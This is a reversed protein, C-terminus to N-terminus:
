WRGRCLACRWPRDKQQFPVKAITRQLDVEGLHALLLDIRSCRHRGAGQPRAGPARRRGAVVRAAAREHAEHQARRARRHAGRARRAGQGSGQRALARGGRAPLAPLARLHRGRAGRRPGDGRGARAPARRLLRRARQDRGRYLKDIAVHRVGPCRSCSRACSSRSAGRRARGRARLGRADGRGAQRVRRRAARAGRPPDVAEGMALELATTYGELATDLRPCSWRRPPAACRRRHRAARRRAVRQHARGLRGRDHLRAAAARVRRRHRRLARAGRGHRGRAARRPRSPPAARRAPEAAPPPASRAGCGPAGADAPARDLRLGRRPRRAPAATEEAELRARLPAARQALPRPCRASRKHRTGPIDTARRRGPSGLPRSRPATRASPASPASQGRLAPVAGIVATAGSAPRSAAPERRSHDRSRSRIVEVRSEAGSAGRRRSERHGLRRAARDPDRRGARRKGPRRAGASSRGCARRCRRAENPPREDGPRAQRRGGVTTATTRCRWRPSAWRRRRHPAPSVPVGPLAGASRRAGAKWARGGAGGGPTPPARRRSRRTAVRPAIARRVRRLLGGAGGVRHRVVPM